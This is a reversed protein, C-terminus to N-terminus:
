LTKAPDIRYIAPTGVIFDSVVEGWKKYHAANEHAKFAEVDKFAEQFIITGPENEPCSAKYFINGPENKRVSQILEKLHVMVEEKCEEKIKVVAVIAISYETSSM